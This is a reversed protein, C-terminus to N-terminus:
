LIQKYNNHKILIKKGVNRDIEIFSSSFFDREIQYYQSRVGLLTHLPHIFDEISWLKNVQNKVINKLDLDTSEFLMPIEYMNSTITAETHGAFYADQYAEEGHDPFFIFSFRKKAERINKLLSSIVFDQYLIANDYKNYISIQEPTLKLKTEIKDNFREYRPPYRHDYKAHAGLLHIVIFKKDAKSKLVKQFSNITKEDYQNPSIDIADNLWYVEHADKAIISHPNDFKGLSKQNSIWFTKYGSAKALNVLHINERPRPGAHNMLTFVKRLSNYTDVHPSIVNTFKVLGTDNGLLPTTERKHGYASMRNRTTSEGLVLVVTNQNIDKTSQITIPSNKQVRLRERFDARESQYHHFYSVLRLPSKTLIGQFSFLNLSLILITLTTLLKQNPRPMWRYTCYGALGLAFLAIFFVSFDVTQIFEWSQVWDTEFLAIYVGPTPLTEYVTLHFFELVLIIIFIFNM